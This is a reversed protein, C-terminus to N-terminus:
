WCSKMSLLISSFKIFAAAYASAFSAQCMWPCACSLRCNSCLRLLTLWLILVAQYNWLFSSPPLCWHKWRKRNKLVLPVLSAPMLTTFCSIENNSLFIKVM